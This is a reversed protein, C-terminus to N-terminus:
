SGNKKYWEGFAAIWSNLLVVFRAATTRVQWDWVGGSLTMRFQGDLVHTALVNLNKAPVQWPLQDAVPLFELIATTFGVGYAGDLLQAGHQHFSGDVQPSHKTPRILLMGLIKLFCNASQTLALTYIHMWVCQCTGVRVGVRVCM